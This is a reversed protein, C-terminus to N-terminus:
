DSSPMCKPRLPFSLHPHSVQQVLTSFIASVMFVSFIINQLGQTSNDSNFFSFGIFLGSAIGLMLKAIIYSPMRWYQQFVRYTVAYLQATFPMAFENHSTPDDEDAIPENSKEQHIRDLEKQVETAENSEKWVDFWDKGSTPSTGKNVIELMYEAPNEEDDCKRAGNTEFYDLLTRSNEGINGFYVTKGGRALFLLRDFQQFM